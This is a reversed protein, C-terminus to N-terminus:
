TSRPCGPRLLSRARCHGVRSPALCLSEVPPGRPFRGTSRMGPPRSSHCGRRCRELAAARGRRLPGDRQATSSRAPSM